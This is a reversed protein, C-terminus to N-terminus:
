EASEHAHLDLDIDLQMSWMWSSGGPQLEKEFFFVPGAELSIAPTFYAYIAAGTAGAASHGTQIDGCFAIKDIYAVHIFPSTWGAMFGFREDDGEPSRFLNENLGYYLGLSPFGVHALTKGLMLHLANADNVDPEFGVGYIGFSWAPQGHFYVGEPAGVKGNLVM